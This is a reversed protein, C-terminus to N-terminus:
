RNRDNEENKELYKKMYKRITLLEYEMIEFECDEYNLIKEADKYTKCIFYRDCNKHTCELIYVKM